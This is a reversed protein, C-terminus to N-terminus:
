CRFFNHIKPTDCQSTNFSVYRFPTHNLKSSELVGDELSVLSFITVYDIMNSALHSKIQETATIGVVDFMGDNNWIVPVIRRTGALSM